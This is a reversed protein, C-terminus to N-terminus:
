GNLKQMLEEAQDRLSALEKLANAIEKDHQNIKYQYVASVRAWADEFITRLQIECGINQWRFSLHDAKYGAVSTVQSFALDNADICLNDGRKAVIQLCLAKLANKQETDLSIIRIGLLDDIEEISSLRRKVKKRLISVPTKVRSEIPLPLYLEQSRGILGELESVFMKALYEATQIRERLALLGPYTQRSKELDEPSIVLGLDTASRSLEVFENKEHERIKESLYGLIVGVTEANIWDPAVSTRVGVILKRDRGIERGIIDNMPFVLLTDIERFLPNQRVSAPIQDLNITGKAVLQSIRQRLQQNGSKKEGLLQKELEDKEATRAFSVLLKSELFSFLDHRELAKRKRAQYAEVLVEHLKLENEPQFARRTEALYTTTLQIQDFYAKKLTPHTLGLRFFNSYDKRAKLIAKNMLKEPSQQPRSMNHMSDCIKIFMSSPGGEVIRRSFRINREENNEDSKQVPKTLISVLETVREGCIRSIDSATTSTDELVDHALAAMIITERDDTIYSSDYYKFSLIAVGLPHLIYPLAKASANAVERLQGDHSHFCLDLCNRVRTDEWLSGLEKRATKFVYDRDFQM